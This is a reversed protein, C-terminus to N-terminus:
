KSSDFHPGLESGNLVLSFQVEAQYLELSPMQGILHWLKTVHKAMYLSTSCLYFFLDMGLLVVPYM